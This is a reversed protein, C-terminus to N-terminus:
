RLHPSILADLCARSLLARAEALPRLQTHPPRHDPPPDRLIVSEGGHQTWPVQPTTSATSGNQTCGDSLNQASLVYGVQSMQTAAEWISDTVRTPNTGSPWKSRISDRHARVAITSPGSYTSTFHACDKRCTNVAMSAPVHPICPWPASSTHGSTGPSVPTERRLM